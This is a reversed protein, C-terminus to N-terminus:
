HPSFEPLQWECACARGSWSRSWARGIGGEHCGRGPLRTPAASHRQGMGCDVEDVHVVLQQFILPNLLVQLIMELLDVTQGRADAVPLEQLLQELLHSVAVVEA